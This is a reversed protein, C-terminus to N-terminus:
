GTREHIEGCEQSRLAQAAYTDALHVVRMVGAGNSGVAVFRGKGPAVVVAKM